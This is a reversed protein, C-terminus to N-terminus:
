RREESCSATRTGDGGGGPTEEAPDNRRVGGVEFDDFVFVLEDLADRLVVALEAEDDSTRRFLVKKSLAHLLSLRLVRVSDLVRSKESPM